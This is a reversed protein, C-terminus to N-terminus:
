IMVLGMVVVVTMMIVMPGVEKIVIRMLVMKMVMIITMVTWMKIVVTMGNYDGDSHDSKDADDGVVLIMMM